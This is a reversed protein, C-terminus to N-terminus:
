FRCSEGSASDHLKQEGIVGEVAGDAVLSSLAIQLVVGVEISVRCPTVILVLSCHLIFVNTGQNHRVHVSADVAGAADSEALFNSSKM